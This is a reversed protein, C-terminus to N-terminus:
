KNIELIKINELDSLDYGDYKDLFELITTRRVKLSGLKLARLKGSKILTYVSDTNVKLIKATEKVTYLENM